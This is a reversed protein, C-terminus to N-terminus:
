SFATYELSEMGTSIRPLVFILGSITSIMAM